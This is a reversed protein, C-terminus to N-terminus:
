YGRHPNVHKNVQIPAPNDVGEHEPTMGRLAVERRTSRPAEVDVEMYNEYLTDIRKRGSVGEEMSAQSHFDAEVGHMNDDDVMEPTIGLRDDTQPISMPTIYKAKPM